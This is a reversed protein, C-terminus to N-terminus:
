RYPYTEQYDTCWDQGLEQGWGGALSLTGNVFADMAQQALTIPEGQQNTEGRLSDITNQLVDYAQTAAMGGLYMGAPVTAIDAVGGGAPVGAMGGLITGSTVM